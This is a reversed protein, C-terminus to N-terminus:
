DPLGALCAIRGMRPMVWPEAYDTHHVLGALSDVGERRRVWVAQDLVDLVLHTRMSM